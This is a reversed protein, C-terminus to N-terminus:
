SIWNWFYPMKSSERPYNVSMKWGVSMGIILCKQFTSHKWIVFLLAKTTHQSIHPYLRPNCVLRSGITFCKHYYWSIWFSYPFVIENLLCINIMIGFLTKHQLIYTHSPIQLLNLGWSPAVGVSLSLLIHIEPDLRYLYRTTTIWPDSPLLLRYFWYQSGHIWLDLNNLFQIPAIRPHTTGLSGCNTQALHDFKKGFKSWVSQIYLFHWTLVFTSFHIQSEEM